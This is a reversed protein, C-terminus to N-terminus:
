AAHADLYDRISLRDLERAVVAYNRDLRDSDAGIQAAIPRLAQALL